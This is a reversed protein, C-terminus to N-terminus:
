PRNGSHVQSRVAANQHTYHLAWAVPNCLLLVNLWSYTLVKRISQVTNPPTGVQNSPRIFLNKTVKKSFPPPRKSNRVRVVSSAASPSAVVVHDGGGADEPLSSSTVIPEPSASVTPRKETVVGETSAAHTSAM